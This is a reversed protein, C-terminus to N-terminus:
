RHPTKQQRKKLFDEAKKLTNKANQYTLKKLAKDYPLWLFGLHELSLTVRKTKSQTLFFVVDKSVRKKNQTFIYRIKHRFGSLFRLEHIGTEESVERAVTQEETEGGEIHGKPFDWHGAKGLKEAEKSTLRKEGEKPRGGLKPYHLLLYQRTGTKKDIYFIVAGASHEMKAESLFRQASM